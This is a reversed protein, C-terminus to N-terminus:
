LSSELIQVRTQAGASLEPEVEDAVGVVRVFNVLGRVVAAGTILANKVLM